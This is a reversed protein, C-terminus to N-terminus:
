LVNGALTGSVEWTVYSNGVIYYGAAGGSWNSSAGASGRGGGVAGPNSYSATGGAGGATATGTQGVGGPWTANGGAAGGIGGVIGAGGGGGSGAVSQTYYGKGSGFGQVLGVSGGGGGGGAYITGNNRVTIPVTTSLATGGVSGATGNGTGYDEGKGGTGGAGQINGNNILLIESGTPFSGITLSPSVASNSYINIGSNIIAKLRIAQSPSGIYSYLNLNAQDSAIYVVKHVLKWTGVDNIYVEQPEKWTGSDNVYIEKSLTWAGSNNVYVPM